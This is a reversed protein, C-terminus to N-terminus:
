RVPHCRRYITSNRVFHTLGRDTAASEIELFKGILPTDRAFTASKISLVPRVLHM